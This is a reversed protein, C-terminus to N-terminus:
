HSGGRQSIHVQKSRWEQSTGSWNGHNERPDELTNEVIKCRRAKIKAYFLIEKSLPGRSPLPGSSRAAWAGKWGSSGKWLFYQWLRGRNFARSLPTHWRLTKYQFAGHINQGKSTAQAGGNEMTKKRPRPGGHMTGDKAGRASGQYGSQGRRNKSDLFSPHWRLGM